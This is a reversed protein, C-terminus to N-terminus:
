NDQTACSVCKVKRRKLVVIHFYSFSLCVASSRLKSSVGSSIPYLRSRLVQPPIPEARPSCLTTTSSRPGSLPSPPVLNGLFRRQFDRIKSSLRLTSALSFLSGRLISSPFTSKYAPRARSLPPSPLVPSFSPHLDSAPRFLLSVPGLTTFVVFDFSTLTGFAYKPCM